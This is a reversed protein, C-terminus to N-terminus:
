AVRSDQWNKQTIHGNIETLTPNARVAAVIERYPQNALGAQFLARVLALDAETDVTWRLDSDDCDATVHRL